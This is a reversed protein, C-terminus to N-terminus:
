RLIISDVFACYAKRAKLMKTRRSKVCRAALLLGEEAMVSVAVDM